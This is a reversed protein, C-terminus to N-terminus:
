REFSIMLMSFALCPAMFSLRLPPDRHTDKGLKRCIGKMVLGLVGTLPMSGGKLKTKIDDAIERAWSSTNDAHYVASALRVKLIAAILEKARSAKFRVPHLCPLYETTNMTLLPKSNAILLSGCEINPM